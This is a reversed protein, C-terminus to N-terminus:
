HDPFHGEGDVFNIVGMASVVAVGDIAGFGPTNLVNGGERGELFKDDVLVTMVQRTIQEETVGLLLQTESIGSKQDIAPEEDALRVHFLHLTEQLLFANRDNM